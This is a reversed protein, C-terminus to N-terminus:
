KINSIFDDTFCADLLDDLFNSCFINALKYTDNNQHYVYEHRLIGNEKYFLIWVPSADLAFKIRRDRVGDLYVKLLRPDKSFHAFNQQVLELSNPMINNYFRGLTETTANTLLRYNSVYARLASNTIRDDRSALGVDCAFGNFEMSIPFPAKYINLSYKYTNTDPTSNDDPHNQMYQFINNLLFDKVINPDFSCMFAENTKFIDCKRCIYKDKIWEASGGNPYKWVFMHDNNVRVDAVMEMRDLPFVKQFMSSFSRTKELTDCCGSSKMMAQLNTIDNNHIYFLLNQFSKEYDTSTPFSLAKGILATQYFLISLSSSHFCKDIDVPVFTRVRVAEAAICKDCENVILQAIIYTLIRVYKM